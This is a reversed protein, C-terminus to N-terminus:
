LNLKFVNELITASEGVGVRQCRLYFQVVHQGWLFYVGDVGAANATQILFEVFM